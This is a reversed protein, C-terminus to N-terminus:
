PLIRYVAIKPNGEQLVKVLQCQGITSVRKGLFPAALIEIRDLGWLKYYLDNRNGALRSDWAIYTIGLKRCENVFAGFNNADEVKINGTHIFREQPLGTYIPLFGPMTTALKDNKEANQLFWEGLTKFNADNKGNGMTFGTTVANSTVAMVLFLPVVIYALSFKAHRLIQLIFFGAVTIVSAAIALAYVPPCNRRAYTFTEVIKILWFFFVLISLIQVAFNFRRVKYKSDLWDWGAIAGYACIFLVMWAAPICFRQLRYPYISHVLIYPAATILMMLIEWRRRVIALVAGAIFTVAIAVAGIWFIFNNAGAWAIIRGGGQDQVLIANFFSSVTQVYLNLDAFLEFKHDKALVQLYHAGDQHGALQWKTILMCIGFPVMAAASLLITKFWKRNQLIDFIAVAPIIAAMDWRTISTLMAFLYAWRIHSRACLITAATLTVITLEAMPDSMQRVMWPTIGCFLAVWVAATGIMKRGILYILLMLVPLLFANYLEAGFLYKDPRNFLLGATATIISYIPGRKMTYPLEFHIWARGVEFFAGFDSNPFVFHGFFTLSYLVGLVVLLGIAVPHAYKEWSAQPEILETHAQKSRNKKIRASM